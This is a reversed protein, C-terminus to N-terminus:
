EQPPLLWVESGKLWTPSYRQDQLGAIRLILALPSSPLRVELRQDVRRVESLGSLFNQYLHEPSSAEFGFLKRAFHRLAARSILSFTCDLAPDLEFVPWSHSLCFYPYHQQASDLRFELQQPTLGLQKALQEQTSDDSRHLVAIHAVVRHLPSSDLLASLSKSHFLTTQDLKSIVSLRQLSTQLLSVADSTAPPLPVLDLWEDRALERLLIAPTGPSVSILEAFLCLERAEERDMLTHLLLNQAGALNLKRTDISELAQCFSHGEFGSFLRLAPDDAADSLRIQGFCKVAALHRLTAATKDPSEAPEAAVNALEDLHMAQFSPGLLFIGGFSSLFSEGESITRSTLFREQHSEGLIVAVAQAGWDADGQMRQALFALAADPHSAGAGAALDVAPQLEGSGLLKIISDILHASRIASLVRRLDLLGNIVARLRLDGRAAPFQSLTRGLLRLADRFRNEDRSAARLPATNWSELIVGTWKEIADERRTGAAGDFCLDFIVKADADDLALLVSELRGAPLLQLLLKVPPPDGRLFIACIAQRESLVRLDEFEEYYWKGWARGAALDFIFQALFAARSPFRLVSDSQEGREVASYIEAAFRRGWSRAVNHPDSFGAELALNVSLNRIRWVAPDGVDLSQELCTRCDSALLDAVLKDARQQLDQPASYSAPVLYTGSWRGVTVIADPHSLPPSV